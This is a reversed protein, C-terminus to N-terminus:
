TVFGKSAGPNSGMVKQSGDEQEPIEKSVPIEMEGM